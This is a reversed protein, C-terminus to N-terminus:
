TCIEMMYVTSAGRVKKHVWCYSSRIQRKPAIEASEPDMTILDLKSMFTIEM